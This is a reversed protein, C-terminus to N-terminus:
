RRVRLSAPNKLAVPNKGAHTARTRGLMEACQMGASECVARDMNAEPCDSLDVGCYWRCDTSGQEAFPFLAELAKEISDPSDVAEWDEVLAWALLIAAVHCWM